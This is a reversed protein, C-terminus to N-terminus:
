SIVVEGEVYAVYEGRTTFIFDGVKTAYWDGRTDWIFVPKNPDKKAM